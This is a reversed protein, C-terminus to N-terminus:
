SLCLIANERTVHLEEDDQVLKALLLKGAGLVGSREPPGFRPNWSCTKRRGRLEVAVKGPESPFLQKTAGRGIRVRGAGCDSATVPLTRYHPSVNTSAPPAPASPRTAATAHDSRSPSERDWWASANAAPMPGTARKIGHDKILDDADKLNAFPMVRVPDHLAERSSWSVAGAFTRLMEDEADDYNPTPAYHVWLDNLVSLTKLWWGGAHPKAAGLPTRYYERVRAALPRSSLGIYLVVEDPLWFATLRRELVAASPRQGDLRLQERVGLLETFAARRLPAAPQAEVLSEPNDTLAVAYVGTDRCPVLQNWPVCGEPELGAGAFVERITSPM